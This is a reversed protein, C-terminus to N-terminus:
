TTSSTWEPAEPKRERIKSRTASGVDDHHAHDDPM